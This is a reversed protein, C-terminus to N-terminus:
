NRKEYDDALLRLATIKENTASSVWESLCEHIYEVLPELHQIKEAQKVKLHILKM